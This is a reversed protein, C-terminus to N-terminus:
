KSPAVAHVARKSTSISFGGVHVYGPRGEPRPKRREGIHSQVPHTKNFTGRQRAYPTSQRLNYLHSVSIGALRQYETQKFVQWTRECLKKAAPGSLTGHLEDLRALLRIDQRTYKSTFGERYATPASDTGDEPM